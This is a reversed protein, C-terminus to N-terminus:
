KLRRLEYTAVKGEPGVIFMAFRGASAPASCLPIDLMANLRPRNGILMALAVRSDVHLASMIRKLAARVGAQGADLATMLEKDSLAGNLMAAVFERQRPTLREYIEEDKM